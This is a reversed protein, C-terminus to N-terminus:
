GQRGPQAGPRLTLVASRAPWQQHWVAFDKTRFTLGEM